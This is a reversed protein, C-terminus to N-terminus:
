AARPGQRFLARPAANRWTVDPPPWLEVNRWMHRQNLSRGCASRRPPRSRLRMIVDVLRPVEVVRRPSSRFGSFRPPAYRHTDAMAEYRTEAQGQQMGSRGAGRRLFDPRTENGRIRCRIM